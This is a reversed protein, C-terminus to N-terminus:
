LTLFWTRQLKRFKKLEQRLVPIYDRGNSNCRELKKCSLYLKNTLQRVLNAHKYKHDSFSAMEAQLIHPALANSYKIIDGSFYVNIDEVGDQNLPALDEGIYDSISASLNFIDLAKRYMPSNSLHAPAYM